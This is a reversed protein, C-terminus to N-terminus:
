RNEPIKDSRLFTNLADLARVYSERAAVRNDATAHQFAAKARQVGELLESQIQQRTEAWQAGTNEM